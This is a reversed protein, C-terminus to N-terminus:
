EWVVGQIGKQNAENAYILMNEQVIKLLPRLKFLKDYDPQGM